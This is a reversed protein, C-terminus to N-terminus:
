IYRRTLTRTHALTIQQRRFLGPLLLGYTSIHQSVHSHSHTHTHSHTRVVSSSLITMYDYHRCWIANALGRGRRRQRRQGTAKRSWAELAKPPCIRRCGRTTATADDDCHTNICLKIRNLTQYPCWFVVCPLVPSRGTALAMIMITIMILTLTLVWLWSESHSEYDPTMHIAFPLGPIMILLRSMGTQLRM